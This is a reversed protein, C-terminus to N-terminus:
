RVPNWAIPAPQLVSIGELRREDGGNAALTFLSGDRAFALRSGDPSWTPRGIQVSEIQNANAPMVVSSQTTIQRLQSGDARVVYIQSAPVVNFGPTGRASVFALRSGDPAWTLGSTCGGGLCTGLDVLKREGSGDVNVIWIAYKGLVELYEAFAIRSGDPSWAPSELWRSRQPDDAVLLRNTGGGADVVYLGRDFIDYVVMAGDPSFSGDFGWTGDHTLQTQSGDSHMVYLDRRIGQPGADLRKHLLLRTGDKSWGIPDAGDAAGLSIRTSPDAPDVTVIQSGERFTISGHVQGFLDIAFEPKRAEPWFTGVAVLTTVLIGALVLGALATRDRRRRIIASM